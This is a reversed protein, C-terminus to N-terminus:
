IHILSLVYGFLAEDDRQKLRYEGPAQEDTWGRPLDDVSYIRDYIIADQDLTPGIVTYERDTLVDFIRAFAAKSIFRESTNVDKTATM